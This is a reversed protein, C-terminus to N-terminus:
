RVIGNTSHAQLRTPQFTIINYAKNQSLLMKAHMRNYIHLETRSFRNKNMNVGHMSVARVM